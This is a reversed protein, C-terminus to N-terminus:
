KIEMWEKFLHHNALDNCLVASYLLFNKHFKRFVTSVNEKKMEIKSPEPVWGNRSICELKVV